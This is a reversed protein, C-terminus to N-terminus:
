AGLARRRREILETESMAISRRKYSSAWRRSEEETLGVKIVRYGGPIVRSPRVVM